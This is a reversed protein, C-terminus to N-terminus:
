RIIISDKVTGSQRWRYSRDTLMEYAVYHQGYLPNDYKNEADMWYSDNGNITIISSWTYRWHGDISDGFSIHTEIAGPYEISIYVRHRVANELPEAKECAFLPLFYLLILIKSIRNKWTIIREAQKTTMVLMNKVVFSNKKYNEARKRTKFRGYRKNEKESYMTYTTKEYQM